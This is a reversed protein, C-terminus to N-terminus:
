RARASRRRRALAPGLHPAALTGVIHLLTSKGCGSPGVIALNQGPNLELSVGRLM